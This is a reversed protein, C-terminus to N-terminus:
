EPWLLLLALAGALSLGFCAAVIGLLRRPGLVAVIGAKFVLNSMAATVILRWGTAATVQDRAVMRSTSLTIADMDTLGSLGAVLYLGQAGLYEKAAAL